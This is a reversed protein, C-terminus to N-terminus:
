NADIGFRRIQSATEFEDQMGWVRAWNLLPERAATEDILWDVPRYIPLVRGFRVMPAYSLPYLVVILLATVAFRAIVKRTPHPM